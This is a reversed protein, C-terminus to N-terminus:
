YLYRGAITFSTMRDSYESGIRAWTAELDADLQVHDQLQITLGMGWRVGWLSGPDSGRNTIFVVNAAGSVLLKSNVFYAGDIGISDFLYSPLLDMNAAGESGSPSLNDHGISGTVDIRLQKRRLPIYAGLEGRRWQVGDGQRTHGDLQQYGSMLQYGYLGLWSLLPFEVHLAPAVLLGSARAQGDSRSSFLTRSAVRFGLGLQVRDRYSPGASEIDSNNASETDMEGESELEPEPATWLEAALLAITRPMAISDVGSLDVDVIRGRPHSPGIVRVTVTTGSCAVTVMTRRDEEGQYEIAIAEQIEDIDLESCLEMTIGPPTQTTDAAATLHWGLTAILLAFLERM